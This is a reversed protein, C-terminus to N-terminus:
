VEHALCSFFPVAKNQTSSVKSHCSPAMANRIKMKAKQKSGATLSFLQMLAPEMM